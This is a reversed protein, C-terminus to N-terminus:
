KPQYQKYFAMFAEFFDAFIMFKEVENEKIENILDSFFKRCKESMNGRAKSYAFKANLMKIYPLKKNFEENEKQTKIHPLVQTKFSVVQDYFNRMQSYAVGVKKVKGKNDTVTENAIEEAKKRATESFLDANLILFAM